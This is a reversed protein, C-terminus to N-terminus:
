FYSLLFWGQGNLWAQGDIMNDLFDTFTMKIIRKMNGKLKQMAFLLKVM